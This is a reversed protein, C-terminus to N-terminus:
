KVKQDKHIKKLMENYYTYAADCASQKSNRLQADDIKFCRLQMPSNKYKYLVRYELIEVGGYVTQPSYVETLVPKRLNAVFKFVNM